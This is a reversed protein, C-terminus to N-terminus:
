GGAAYKELLAKFKADGRIPDWVPDINLMKPSYYFGIGPSALATALLPVALDPRQAQAYLAANAQM